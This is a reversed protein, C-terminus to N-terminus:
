TVKRFTLNIRSTLHPNLPDAKLTKIGHYILRSKGGWVMVDGDSLLYNKQIGSRESGFIQFVAQLGMSVSVIPWDFNQENKDQHSGLKAGIHYQNILCADPIFGNFGAKEAALIAVQSFPKPM